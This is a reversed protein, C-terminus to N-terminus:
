NNAEMQSFKIAQITKAIGKKFVDVKLSKDMGQYILYQNLTNDGQKTFKQIHMPHSETGDSNKDIVEGIMTGAKRDITVREYTNREMAISERRRIYVLTDADLQKVGCITTLSFKDEWTFKHLYATIMTTFPYKYLYNLKM